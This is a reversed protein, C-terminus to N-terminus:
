GRRIWGGGLVVDDQYFVCAQGPTIARQPERFKVHATRGSGPQILAPAGPHKYRIKALAEFPTAPPDQAIWNCGELDCATRELDAAEGLVVLNRDPDLEVVYLPKGAAVRLGRRQGITFFEIGDHHGLSRGQTDVIQGPRKPIGATRVLFEGYNQDPVFCIEMSEQKDATRLSLRRARERTDTKTMSGLPMLARALQDQRLTFLFYSQDKKPDLGRKLLWRGGRASSEIRAYHGTAVYPADLADARRLLSGFKLKDNCWICPNPTRGAQYESVFNQIVDRRFTETENLVYHPIGLKLCVSRADAVAQPGCCVDDALTECPQPWLRLTVGIVEYGQEMLLAAALSSDVGGSMGVLVRRIATDHAAM